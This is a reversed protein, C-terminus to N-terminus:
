VDACPRAIINWLEYVKSDRKMTNEVIDVALAIEAVVGEFIAVGTLKEFAPKRM